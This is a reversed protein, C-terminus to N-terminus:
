DLAGEIAKKLADGGAEAGKSGLEAIKKARKSYDDTEVIKVSVTYEAANYVGSPHHSRPPPVFRTSCLSGKCRINDVKEGIPVDKLALQGSQSWQRPAGDDGLWRSSIRLDLLVDINEDKSTWWTWPFYWARRAIKAKTYYLRAAIPKVRFSLHKTAEPEHAVVPKFSPTLGLRLFFALEDQKGDVTVTRTIEIVNLKRLLNDNTTNKYFEDGLAIAEYGAIYRKTEKDLESKVASVLADVAIGIIPGAVAALARNGDDVGLNMRDNKLLAVEVKEDESQFSRPNAPVLTNCGLSFSMVSILLLLKPV